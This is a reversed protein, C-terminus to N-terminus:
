QFNNAPMPRWICRRRGGGRDRRFFCSLAGHRLPACGRQRLAVALDRQRRLHTWDAHIFAYTVFTWVDAGGGPLAGGLMVSSDYRVPIFAFTLLFEVDQQESLLYVRVVHILM